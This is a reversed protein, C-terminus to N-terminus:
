QTTDELILCMFLPNQVDIRLPLYVLLSAIGGIDPNYESSKNGGLGGM